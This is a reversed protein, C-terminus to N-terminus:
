LLIMEIGGGTQAAEPINIKLNQKKQKISDKRDNENNTMGPSVVKM